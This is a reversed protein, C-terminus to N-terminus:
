LWFGFLTWVNCKSVHGQKPYRKHVTESRTIKSLAASALQIPGEAQKVYTCCALGWGVSWAQRQRDRPNEAWLAPFQKSKVCTCFGLHDQLHGPPLSRGMPFTLWYIHREKEGISTESIRKRHSRPSDWLLSCNGSGYGARCEKEKETKCGTDRSECDWM